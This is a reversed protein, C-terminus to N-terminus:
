ADKLYELYQEPSEDDQDIANLVAGYTERISVEAELMERYTQKPLIVCPTGAVEVEIAQGAQIAKEQDQTLNMSEAGLNYGSSLSM